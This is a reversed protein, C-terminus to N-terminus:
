SLLTAYIHDLLRRPSFPKTFYSDAGADLAAQRDEPMSAGTLIVIHMGRTAPDAKLERCVELGDPSGPDLQVDLVILDPRLARALRLAEAGNSTQHIAFERAALTTALLRRLGPDDDVLLIRKAHHSM